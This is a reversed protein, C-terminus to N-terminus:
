GTQTQQTGTAKTFFRRVVKEFDSNKFAEYISGADSVNMDAFFAPEKPSMASLLNALTDVTEDRSMIDMIMDLGEVDEGFKVGNIVCRLSAIIKPVQRIPPETFTVVEGRVNVDVTIAEM